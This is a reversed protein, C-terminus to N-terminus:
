EVEAWANVAFTTSRTGQALVQAVAGVWGQKNVISQLAVDYYREGFVVQTRRPCAALGVDVSQPAIHLGSGIAKLCAEKRTWGVFFARDQAHKPLCEFEGREEATFHEGVLTALDPLSRIREVDVGVDHSFSTGILGIDDSHSLNFHLGASKRLAPKGWAGSEFLLSRADGAGRTALACRLAAHAALYRRQDHLCRFRAAKRREEDSLDDQEDISLPKSLDVWLLAPPPWLAIGEVHQCRRSRPIPTLSAVAGRLAQLPPSDPPPMDIPRVGQMM